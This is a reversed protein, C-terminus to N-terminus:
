AERGFFRAANGALRTRVEAVDEALVAAIREVVVEVPLGSADTECLMREAPTSKLSEANFEPGFSLWLGEQLLMRAITPKGRFGHIAWGVAPHLEKHLSIVHDHARVCHIVLPKGVESAMEAQRRFELQQRFLPAGKALDIGCEGLALVDPRELAHRLVEVQEETAPLGALNDWPHFGVSWYQEISGEPPLQSPDLAIVAGPAPAPAHTHIDLIM